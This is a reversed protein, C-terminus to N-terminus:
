HYNMSVCHLSGHQKILVSCDIGVIDREPFINKFIELVEDDHVDNYTPVLVAGNIILFNVYTAPLRDSWFVKPTPLPLPILKFGSEKLELEMKSLESFHEDNEDYCKTYVITDIKVFRALTDIHSNTDDGVLYGHNLWIIKKADFYSKLKEEIQSKNLHPNRNPELLCESTVLIVGDGNTDISGGELIIDMTKIESDEFIGLKALELTIQNDLNSAFKLGWGNFGFNLIKRKGDEFITIGGFDRSWTDNSNLNVLICNQNESFMSKIIFENTDNYIILCKQRKSVEIAINKFCDIAEDLYEGWDSNIHPFVLQVFKQEEWEAPLRKM